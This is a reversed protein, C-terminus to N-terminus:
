MQLNRCTISYTSHGSSDFTNESFPLREGVGTILHANTDEVTGLFEVTLPDIGVSFCDVPIDHIGGTGSGVALVCEGEFSAM